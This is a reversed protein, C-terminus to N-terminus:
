EEEGSGEEDEVLEGDDKEDVAFDEGEVVDLETDKEAEEEKKRREEKKRDLEAQVDAPLIEGRELKDLRKKFTVYKLVSQLVQGIPISFLSYVLIWNPMPGKSGGGTFFELLAGSDLLSWGNEIAWPTSIIHVPTQNYIFVMLWMFLLLSFIMTFMMTKMQASMRDGTMKMVEANLEQVKKMKVPNGQAERFKKQVFKQLYSQRGVGIWDTFKHRLFTTCMIMILSTLFVTFVPYVLGLGVSPGLCIDMGLGLAFRLDPTLLLILMLPMIMYMLLMSGGAQPKEGGPGAATGAM